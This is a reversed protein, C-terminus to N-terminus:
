LDEAEIFNEPATVVSDPGFTNFTVDLLLDLIIPDGEEGLMAPDIMLAITITAASLEGTAPDVYYNLQYTGDDLLMGLIAIAMRSEALSAELEEPTTSEDALVPAISEIGAFIEDSTIWEGINLDIIFHAMGDVDDSRTADIYNAATGFLDNNLTSYLGTIDLEGDQVLGMGGLESLAEETTADAPIYLWTDDDLTPDALGNIGKIYMDEGAITRVEIDYPIADEGLEAVGAVTGAMTILSDSIEPNSIARGNTSISIQEGDASMNFMFNYDIDLAATTPDVALANSLLTADDANLGATEFTASCASAVLLVVLLLVSKSFFKMIYNGKM